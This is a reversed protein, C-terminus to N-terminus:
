VTLSQGWDLDLMEIGDDALVSGAMHRIRARGPESLYFDHIMIVREPKVRRAFEVGGTVSDWPALLPLALIPATVTPQRSDGPHTIVGEITFSRNPPQAGTPLREHLVDEVSAGVPVDVSVEIDHEELLDVVAQNSYVVLDKRRDILWKVFDPHVHDGHEHTVFVRTVDGISQLDVEGELFTHFGPDFLTADEDTTVLLCSDTLRRIETM